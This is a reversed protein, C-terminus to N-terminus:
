FKTVMRSQITKQPLLGIHSSLGMLSYKSVCHILYEILELVCFLHSYVYNPIQLWRVNMAHRVVM